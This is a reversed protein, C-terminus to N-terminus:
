RAAEFYQEYTRIDPPFRHLPVGNGHAWNINLIDDLPINQWEEFQLPGREEYVFRNNWFADIFDETTPERHPEDRGRGRRGRNLQGEVPVPGLCISFNGVHPLQPSYVVADMNDLPDGSFGIYLAHGLRRDGREALEGNRLRRRARRTNNQDYSIHNFAVWPLPLRYRRNNTQITRFQPPYVVIHLNENQFITHGDLERTVRVEGDVYMNGLLERRRVTKRIKDQARENAEEVRRQVMQQIMPGAAERMEQARQAERVARDAEIQVRNAAFNAIKAAAANAKNTLSEPDIGLKKAIALQVTNKDKAPITTKSFPVPTPQLVIKPKPKPAQVSISDSGEPVEPASIQTAVQLQEKIIDATSTTAPASKEQPEPQPKPAAQEPQTAPEPEPEPESEVPERSANIDAILYEIDEEEDEIEPQPQEPEPEPEPEGTVKNQLEKILETLSLDDQNALLEALEKESSM